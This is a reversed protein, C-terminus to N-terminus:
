ASCSNCNCTCNYHPHLASSSLLGGDSRREPHRQLHSQKLHSLSVSSRVPVLPPSVCLILLFLLIHSTHRNAARVRAWGPAPQHGIISCLSRDKGALSTGSWRCFPFSSSSSSSSSSSLPPLPILSSLLSSLHSFPLSILSPLLSSPSSLYLSLFLSPSLSFLSPTLSPSLSPSLSRSLSISLHIENGMMTAVYVFACISVRESHCARGEGATSQRGRVYTCVRVRVRRRTCVKEGGRERVAVNYTREGATSERGRREGAREKEGALRGLRGLLSAAGRGSVGHPHLTRAHTRTDVPTAFLGTAQRDRHSHYRMFWLSDSELLHSRSHRKHSKVDKTHADWGIGARSAHVSGSSGSSSSHMVLDSMTCLVWLLAGSAFLFYLGFLTQHQKSLIPHSKRELPWTAVPQSRYPTTQCTCVHIYM